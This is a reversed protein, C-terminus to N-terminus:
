IAACLRLRPDLRPIGLVLACSPFMVDIHGELSKYSRTEVGLFVSSRPVQTTDLGKWLCGRECSLACAPSRLKAQHAMQCCESDTPFVKVFHRADTFGLVKVKYARFRLGHARYTKM